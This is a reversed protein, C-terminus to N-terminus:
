KKRFKLIFIVNKKTKSRYGLGQQLKELEEVRKQADREEKKLKFKKSTNDYVM